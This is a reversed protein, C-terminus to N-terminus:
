SYQVKSSLNDIFYTQIRENISKYTVSNGLKNIPTIPRQNCSYNQDIDIIMSIDIKLM